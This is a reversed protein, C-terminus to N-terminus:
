RDGIVKLPFMERRALAPLDNDQVIVRRSGRWLLPRCPRGCRSGVCRQQRSTPTPRAQAAAVGSRARGRAVPLSLRVIPLRASACGLDRSSSSQVPHTKANSSRLMKEDQQGKKGQAM